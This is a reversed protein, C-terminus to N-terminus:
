VNFTQTSQCKSPETNYIVVEIM